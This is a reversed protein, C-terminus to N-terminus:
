LIDLLHEVVYDQEEFTMDHYLPLTLCHEFAYLSGSMDGEIRCNPNDNYAKHMHLAYTGIQTEIGKEKLKEITDNRNEVFICCSQCSHEGGVTIKPFSVGAHASLMTYYREALQRRRDLLMQIQEMQVLGVAAQINSLKYNTGIRDFETLTRSARGAMGFHKYSEM